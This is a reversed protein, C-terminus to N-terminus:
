YKEYHYLGTEEYSLRIGEQVKPCDIKNTIAQFAYSDQPIEGNKM